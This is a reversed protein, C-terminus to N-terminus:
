LYTVKIPNHLLYIPNHSIKHSKFPCHNGAVNPDELHPQEDGGQLRVARPSKPKSRHPPWQALQGQPRIPITPEGSPSRTAGEVVAKKPAFHGLVPTLTRFIPPLGVSGVKETPYCAWHTFRWCRQIEWIRWTRWSAFNGSSSFPLRSLVRKSVFVVAVDQVLGLFVREPCLSTALVTPFIAVDESNAKQKWRRNLSFIRPQLTSAQSDHIRLTGWDTLDWFSEFEAMVAYPCLPCLMNSGRKQSDLKMVGAQGELNQRKQELVKVPTDSQSQFLHNLGSKPSTIKLKQVPEQVIHAVTHRGAARPWPAKFSVAKLRKPASLGPDPAFRSRDRLWWELELPLLAEAIVRWVRRWPNPVRHYPSNAGRAGDGDDHEHDQSPLPLPQRQQCQLWQRLLLQWRQRLLGRVVAAVAHLRPPGLLLWLQVQLWQLGQTQFPSQELPPQSLFLFLISLCPCLCLCSPLWQLEGEQLTLLQCEPMQERSAPHHSRSRHPHPALSRPKRGLASAICRSQFTSPCILRPSLFPFYPFNPDWDIGTAEYPKWKCSLQWWQYIQAAEKRYKQM